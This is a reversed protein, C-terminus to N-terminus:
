LHNASFIYASASLFANDSGAFHPRVGFNIYFIHQKPPHSAEMRTPSIKCNQLNKDVFLLLSKDSFEHFRRYAFLLINRQIDIEQYKNCQLARCSIRARKFM